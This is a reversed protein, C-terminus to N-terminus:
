CSIWTFGAFPRWSSRRCSYPETQRSGRRRCRRPRVACGSSRCRNSFSVFGRRAACRWAWSRLRFLRLSEEATTWEWYAWFVEDVNGFAMPQAFVREIQRTRLLRLAETMLQEKSGFYHLLMRPSTDLARAAPRLSLDSVGHDMFYDAFRALLDVRRQPDPRRDWTKRPRSMGGKATGM